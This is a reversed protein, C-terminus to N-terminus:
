AIDIDSPRLNLLYGLRPKNPILQDAQARGGVLPALSDRLRRVIDSVDHGHAAAGFLANEIERRQMPTRDDLARDALVVLLDFPQPALPVSHGDFVVTREMTRIVLRAGRPDPPAALRAPNLAFPKAPDAGSLVEMVSLLPIDATLFQQRVASGPMTATVAAADRGCRIKIRQLLDAADYDPPALLLL